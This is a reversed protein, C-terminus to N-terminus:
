QYKYRIIVIGSGGAGSAAAGGGGGGGGTNTTGATGAGPYPFGGPGGGGTGGTGESKGPSAAGGGGGAYATPSGSISTTGGAGGNGTINSAHNADDGAATAGGGGASVQDPTAFGADGGDNGQPPSVSPTNGTGGVKGGAPVPGGGASGGGSGGPRGGCGGACAPGSAGGGGTSTITSFVSNSGDNGQSLGTPIAAGGGGVTIPYGQVTVPLASVCAGLPSATYCGSAAGSSERYGGAGGGGGINANPSASGSGGGAVVLYDVTNSGAPNGVSCVTFTGPGTFTHIKYNGCCTITGGTATIYQATPAESQLGSDTVLWGQTADVYVLTVALGEVSLTANATNDGGIKDSGNPTVTVNNTDWTNAYDKLSVISGASGAPLTVTVAGSTTNVFYGNGSVATFSATKATTDWDVTGTRGFGTQSAGCALTITDGSAGLTITTGCKNAINAGCQNQINNVKITSAM